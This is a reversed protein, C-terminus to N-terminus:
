SLITQFVEDSPLIKSRTFGIKQLLAHFRQMVYQDKSNEDGEQTAKKQALPSTCRFDGLRFLM